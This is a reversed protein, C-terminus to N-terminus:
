NSDWRSLCSKRTDLYDFELLDARPLTIQTPIEATPMRWGGLNGRYVDDRSMM